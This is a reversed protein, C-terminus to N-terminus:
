NLAAIEKSSINYVLAWFTASRPSLSRDTRIVDKIIEEPFQDKVWSIAKPNGYELLRAISYHPYSLPDFSDTDIDWFFSCLYNPIMFKHYWLAVRIEGNKIYDTCDATNFLRGFKTAEIKKFPIALPKRSAPEGTMTKRSLVAAPFIWPSFIM